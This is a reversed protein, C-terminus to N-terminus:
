KKRENRLLGKKVGDIFRSWAFPNFLNNQPMQNRSYAANAYQRTLQRYSAEPSTTTGSLIQRHIFEVNRNMNEVEEQPQLEADAMAQLFEAYNGWPLVTVEKLQITDFDMTIDKIYRTATYDAPVVSIAKKFGVVSFHITDGPTVTISYIGNSRSTTGTRLKNSWINVFPIPNGTEDYVFGGAQIYEPPQDTQGELQFCRLGVFFLILIVRSM